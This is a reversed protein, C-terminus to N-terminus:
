TYVATVGNFQIEGLQPWESPLDGAEAADSEVPTKQAFARFRAVAGFAIEMNTFYRIFLSLTQSFSILSLFALGMSNASASSRVTLAIAVMVVGAGACFLDMLSLLWQQAATLFYFPKQTKELLEHFESIFHEQWHFSRIHEIGTSTETLLRVLLKSTDLQLARLQRSTKLYFHQVVLLLIVLLPIIPLAYTAGSAIVGIDILVSLAGPFNTLLGTM